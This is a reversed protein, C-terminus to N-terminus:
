RCIEDSSRGPGADGRERDRIVIRNGPEGLSAGGRGRSSYSQDIADLDGRDLGAAVNVNEAVEEIGAVCGQGCEEHLLTDISDPADLLDDRPERAGPIADVYGVGEVVARSETAADATRVNGIRQNSGSVHTIPVLREVAEEPVPARGENWAATGGGRFDDAHQLLGTADGRKRMRTQGPDVRQNWRQRRRAKGCEFHTM